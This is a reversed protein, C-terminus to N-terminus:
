ERTDSGAPPSALSIIKGARNVIFCHAARPRLLARADDLSLGKLAIGDVQVVIDGVALGAEAAPSAPLIATAVYNKQLWGKAKLLVGADYEDISDFLSNPRLYLMSGPFDITVDFHQLIDNGISGAWGNTWLGQNQTVLHVLPNRIVLDGLQISACRSLTESLAGGGGLSYSAVGRSFHLEPNAQLFNRSLTVSENSGTDLILSTPHSAVNFRNLTAGVLLLAHQFQLPIPDGARSADLHAPDIWEITRRRYDIRLVYHQLVDTGLIGDIHLGIPRDWSSTSVLRFSVSALDLGPLSVRVPNTVASLLLDKGIGNGTTYADSTKIALTAATKEDLFSASAGTDVLFQLPTHGQIAATIVIHGLVSRFKMKATNGSTFTATWPTVSAHGSRERTWSDVLADGAELQTGTLTGILQHLLSEADKGSYTRMALTCWQYARVPDRPVFAGNFYCLAVNFQAPGFNHNAAQLFYTFAKEPDTPVGEGKQYAVGLENEAVLNGQQAAKTFWSVAQTADKKVVRGTAYFEGVAEQGNADGAKAGTLYWHWAAQDDATVGLGKDYLWGLASAAVPSKGDAAKQLWIRGQQYDLTVDLGFCFALGVKAEAAVDGGEAQELLHPFDIEQARITGAPVAVALVM